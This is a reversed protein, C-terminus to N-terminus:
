FEGEDHSEKNPAEIIIAGPRGRVHAENAARRIADDLQVEDAVSIPMEGDVITIQASVPTIRSVASGAEFLM